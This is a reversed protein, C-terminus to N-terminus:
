QEGCQCFTRSFDEIQKFGIIRRAHQVSQRREADPDIRLSAVAIHNMANATNKRDLLRIQKEAVGAGRKTGQGGCQRQRTPTVRQSAHWTHMLPRDAIQDIRQAFQTGVDGVATAFTKRREFQTRRRDPRGAEHMHAAVHRALEQGSQQHRQRQGTDFRRDFHDTFQNGPRIDFNRQRDHRAEANLDHALSPLAKDHRGTRPIARGSHNM